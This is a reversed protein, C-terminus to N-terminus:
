AHTFMQSFIIDPLPKVGVTHTRAAGSTKYYRLMRYDISNTEKDGTNFYRAINKDDGASSLLLLHLKAANRIM